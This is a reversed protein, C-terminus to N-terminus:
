VKGFSLQYWDVHFQKIIEVMERRRLFHHGLVDCIQFKGFWSSQNTGVLRRPIAQYKGGDM